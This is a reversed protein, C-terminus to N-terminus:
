RTQVTLQIEPIENKFENVIIAKIASIVTKAAGITQLAHNHDFIDKRIESKPLNRLVERNMNIRIVEDVIESFEPKRLEDFRTALIRLAEGQGSSSNPKEGYCHLLARTVNEVAVAANRMSEAYDKYKLRLEASRINEEALKVLQVITGGWNRRLYTIEMEKSQLFHRDLLSRFRRRDRNGFAVRWEYSRPTSWSFSAFPTPNTSRRQFPYDTGLIVNPSIQNRPNNKIPRRRREEDLNMFLLIMLGLIGWIILVSPM